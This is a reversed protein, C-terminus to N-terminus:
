LGGKAAWEKAVGARLTALGSAALVADAVPIHAWLGTQIGAGYIAAAFAVLYTKKGQLWTLLSNM